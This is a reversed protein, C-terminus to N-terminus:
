GPPLPWAAGAPDETRAPLDRLAQRYSAWAKRAGAPLPADPIQTWDSQSLLRNREARLPAFAAERRLADAQAKAEDYGAFDLDEPEILDIRGDARIETRCPKGQARALAHIALEDYGPVLIM